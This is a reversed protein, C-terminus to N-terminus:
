DSDHNVDMSQALKDLQELEMKKGYEKRGKWDLWALLKDVCERYKINYSHVIYGGESPFEVHTGGRSIEVDKNTRKIAGVSELWKLEGEKTLVRVKQGIRSKDWTVEVDEKFSDLERDFDAMEQDDYWDKQYVIKKEQQQKKPM